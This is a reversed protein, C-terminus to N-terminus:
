LLKLFLYPNLSYETALAVRIQTVKKTRIKLRYERSMYSHNKQFTSKSAIM